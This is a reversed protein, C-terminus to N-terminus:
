RLCSVKLRNLAITEKVEKMADRIPEEKQEKLLIERIEAELDRRIWRAGLGVVAAALTEPPFVLSAPGLMADVAFSRAAEHLAERTAEDLDKQSLREVLRDMTQDVISTLDAYRTTGDWRKLHQELLAIEERLQSAGVELRAEGGQQERLEKILDDESLASGSDKLAKAAATLTAVEFNTHRFSRHMFYLQVAHYAYIEARQVKPSPLVARLIQGTSHCVAMRFRREQEERIDDRRSPTDALISAVKDVLTPRIQRPVKSAEKKTSLMLKLRRVKRPTVYEGESDGIEICERKGMDLKHHERHLDLFV